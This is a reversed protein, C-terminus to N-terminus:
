PSGHISRQISAKTSDASLASINLWTLSVPRFLGSGLHPLQNAGSNTSKGLSSSAIPGLYAMIHMSISFYALAHLIQGSALITHCLGSQASKSAAAIRQLKKKAKQRSFVLEMVNEQLLYCIRHLM